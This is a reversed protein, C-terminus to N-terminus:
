EKQPADPMTRVTRIASLRGAVQVWWRATYMVSVGLYVLPELYKRSTVVRLQNGM